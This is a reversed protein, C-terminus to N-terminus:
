AKDNEISIRGATVIRLLVFVAGIIGSFAEPNGKIWASISPIFAAAAVIFATWVTKSKWPPKTEM